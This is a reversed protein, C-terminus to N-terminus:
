KLDKVLKNYSLISKKIDLSHEIIKGFACYLDARKSTSSFQGITGINYFLEDNDMFVEFEGFRISNDDVDLLYFYIRDLYLSCDFNQGTISKVFSLLSSKIKFYVESFNKNVM